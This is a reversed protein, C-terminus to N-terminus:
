PLYHFYGIDKTKGKKRQREVPFLSSFSKFLPLLLSVSFFYSYILDTEYVGKNELLYIRLFVLNSVTPFTYIYCTTETAVFIADQLDFFNYLRM